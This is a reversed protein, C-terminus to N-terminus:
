IITIMASSKKDSIKKKSMDEWLDEWHNLNIFKIMGIKLQDNSIAWKTVSLALTKQEESLRKSNFRKSFEALSLNKANFENEGIKIKRPYIDWIQKAYNEIKSYFWKNVKEIVQDEKDLYGEEKLENLINDAFYNENIYNEALQKDTMKGKSNRAPNESLMYLIAIKEVTTKERNAIKIIKDIDM